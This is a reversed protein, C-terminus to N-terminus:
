AEDAGPRTEKAAPMRCRELTGSLCRSCSPFPREAKPPSTHSTTLTFVEGLGLGRRTGQEVPHVGADLSANVATALKRAMRINLAPSHGLLDLPKTGVPINEESTESLNPDFSGLTIKVPRAYFATGSKFKRYVLFSRLGGENIALVLGRVTSDYVYRWGVKPRRVACLRARTFTFKTPPTRKTAPM